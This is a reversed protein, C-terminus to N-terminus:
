ATDRLNVVFPETAGVPTKVRGTLPVKAFDNQLFDFAASSAITAEYVDVICPLQNAFNIGDFKIKLRLQSSTGGAIKTGSIANYTCSVHLAEDATIAGGTIAKIWGLRYNVDYDTGLVYTTADTSNKVTLGATAINQKSLPVWSDLKAVIAEATLSGSGQTLASQSGLLAITMTEINVEALDMSFEIPKPVTVSEIVQGYSDRGRSVMDKLDSSVKLEFKNSLYPGKFNGFAATTPDYRAIYIDGAGLFGRAEDAM